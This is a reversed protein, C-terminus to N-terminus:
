RLLPVLTLGKVIRKVDRWTHVVGEVLAARRIIDRQHRGVIDGHDGVRQHAKGVHTWVAGERGTVARCAQGAGVRGCPYLKDPPSLLHLPSSHHIYFVSIYATNLIHLYFLISYTRKTKQLPTCGGVDQRQERM